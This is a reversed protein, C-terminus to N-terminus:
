PGTTIRVRLFGQAPVGATSALRFSRYEYGSPAAPLGTAVPTGIVVLTGFDVLDPSGQIAYTFGDMTAGPVPSGTFAPTGARVAITFLLGDTGDIAPHSHLIGNVVANNPDGGLAFELLNVQGDGDPDDEPDRQDAPVGAHVLYDIFPTAAVTLTFEQSVVEGLTNHREIVILHDGSVIDTALTGALIGTAPDL